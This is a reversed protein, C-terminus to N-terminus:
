VVGLVGCGDRLGAWVGQQQEVVLEVAEETLDGEGVGYGKGM